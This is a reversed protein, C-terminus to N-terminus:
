GRVPGRAPDFISPMRPDAPDIPEMDTQTTREVPLCLMNQSRVTYPFVREKYGNFNDPEALRPVHWFLRYGMEHILTILARQHEPRDNEVYLVPRCRAITQAAGELVAIEFGEVDIKMLGCSPLALDDLPIIRVKDAQASAEAVSVGGFNGVAGYDLAPLSAEGPERGCADPSAIVNRVDNLVLNACLIQFIRQQPEFAYLKAPYCAKAMPVTHSGINSGVEVVTMGPKIIQNLLNLEMPSLEGCLELCRTIYCDQPLALMTGHRTNLTKVLTPSM